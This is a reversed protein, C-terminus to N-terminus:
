SPKHLAGVQAQPTLFDVEFRDLLAKRMTLFHRIHPQDEHAKFAAKDRYLEYFIRQNPSGEVVQPIYVLTNPEREHILAVTEATLRDFEDERGPKLHFRVVLAFADSM